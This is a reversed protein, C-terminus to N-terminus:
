ESKGKKTSPSKVKVNLPPSKLVVVIFAEIVENVGFLVNYGL